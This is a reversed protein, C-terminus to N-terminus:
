RRGGATGPPAALPSDMSQPADVPANEEELRRARDAQATEKLRRAARAARASADEMRAPCMFSHKYFETQAVTLRCLPCSLRTPFSNM